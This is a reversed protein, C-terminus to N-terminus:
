QNIELVKKVEVAKDHKGQEYMTKSMMYAISELTLATASLDLVRLTAVGDYLTCFQFKYNANCGTGQFPVIGLINALKVMENYHNIDFEKTKM